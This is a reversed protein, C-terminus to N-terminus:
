YIAGSAAELILDIGSHYFPNDETSEIEYDVEYDDMATESAHDPPLMGLRDYREAHPAVVRVIIGENYRIMDAENPFRVDTFVPITNGAWTVQKEM